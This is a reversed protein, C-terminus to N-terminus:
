DCNWHCEDKNCKIFTAYDEHYTSEQVVVFKPVLEKFFVTNENEM